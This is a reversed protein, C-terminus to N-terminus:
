LLLCRYRVSGATLLVLSAVDRALYAVIRALRLPGRLSRTPQLARYVPYAACLSLWLPHILSGMLLGVLGVVLLAQGCDLFYSRFMFQRLEPFRAILLPWIYLQRICIWNWPALPVVEHWALANPAFCSKWGRRKVNWAVTVDEGGQPHEAGPTLDTPFGGSDDLAARRYFINATDYTPTENEIRIYWKFIGLPQGPDPLTRGQVLGIGDAFAEIGSLLWAPSAFCDSDMFGIYEGRAM